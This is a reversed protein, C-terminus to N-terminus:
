DRPVLELCVGLDFAWACALNILFLKQRCHYCAGNLGDEFGCCDDATAQINEVTELILTDM